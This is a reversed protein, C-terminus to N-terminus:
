KARVCRVMMAQDHVTGITCGFVGTNSSFTGIMTYNKTADTVHVTSSWVKAWQPQLMSAGNDKISGSPTIYVTQQGDTFARYKDMEWEYTCSLLELWEDQTPTRWTGAPTVLSCPDVEKAAIDAYAKTEEAPGYATGSYKKGAPDLTLGYRSNYKFYMGQEQAGAFTYAGEKVTLYGNSWVVSLRNKPAEQVVKRGTNMGNVYITLTREDGDNEPISFTAVPNSASASVKLSLARGDTVEVDFTSLDSICNVTLTFADAPVPGKPTHSQYYAYNTVGPQVLQKGTPEGNVFITYVIQEIDTNEPVDIKVVPNDKTAIGKIEYNGDVLSVVYGSLEGPDTIIEITTEASSDLTEPTHSVYVPKKLNRVCRVSAMNTGMNYDLIMYEEAMALLGGNGEVDAGSYWYAGHTNKYGIAGTERDCGGALPLFLKGGGFSFCTIGEKDISKYDDADYLKQMEYLSPLRLAGNSALMCPDGNDRPIDELAVTVEEPTYCIGGYQSGDSPIGYTSNHEFYLGLEEQSRAVAFKGDRLTLNGTTWYCGDIAVLGMSQRMDVVPQWEPAGGITSPIKVDVLIHREQVDMNAPIVIKVQTTADTLTEEQQTDADYIVRYSWEKISAQRMFDPNIKVTFEGGQWEELRWSADTEVINGGLFAQNPTIPDDTCGAAGVMAALALTWFMMKKM